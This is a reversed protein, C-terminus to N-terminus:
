KWFNMLSEFEGISLHRGPPMRLNEDDAILRKQVKQFLDPNLQRLEANQLDLKPGGAGDHCSMCMKVAQPADSNLPENPTCNAVIKSILEPQDIKNVLSRCAFERASIHERYGQNYEYENEESSAPDSYSVNAYDSQYYSPYLQARIQGYEPLDMQIKLVPWLAALIDDRIDKFGQFYQWQRRLRSPSWDFDSAGASMALQMIDFSADEQARRDWRSQPLVGTSLLKLKKLEVEWQKMQPRVADVGDCELLSAAILPTTLETCQNSRTLTLQRALKLGNLVAFHKSLQLNPRLPDKGSRIRPIYPAVPSDTGEPFALLHYRKHGDKAAVFSRFEKLHQRHRQVLANDNYGTPPFRDGDDFDILADDEEGYTGPWNDYEEWIPKPDAGHCRACKAPNIESLKGVDSGSPDFSIERMQFRAGDPAHDVFQIMEIQQYGLQDPSGNFSIVFKADLGFVIARPNLPSASQLSRSERMLTFRTFLDPQKTKLATLFEEVSRPSENQMIKEVLEFGRLEAADASSGSLLLMFWLAALLRSNNM